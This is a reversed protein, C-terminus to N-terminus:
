VRYDPPSTASRLADRLAFPAVVIILAVLSWRCWSGSIAGIVRLVTILVGAALIAIVALRSRPSWESRQPIIGDSNSMFDRVREM